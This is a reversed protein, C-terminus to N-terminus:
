AYVTQSEESGDVSWRVYWAPGWKKVKPACKPFSVGYGCVFRFWRSRIQPRVRDRWTGVWITVMTLLRVSVSPRLVRRDKSELITM